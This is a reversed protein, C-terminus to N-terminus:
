RALQVDCHTPRTSRRASSVPESRVTPYYGADASLQEPNGGNAAEIAALMSGMQQKDSGNQSVDQAVIVQSSADVAAQANYGQIFGDNTKMIRSEADTFNRQAGQEPWPCAKDAPKAPAAAAAGAPGCADGGDALGDKEAARAEAELAAKAERIKALRKQKNAVWEPMEDGRRQDGHESDEAADTRGAKKMWDEVEAVLKPEAEVVRGYSM